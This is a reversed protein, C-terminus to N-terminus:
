LWTTLPPFYCIVFLGSPTVTRASRCSSPAKDRKIIPARAIITTKSAGDNTRSSNAAIGNVKPIMPNIRNLPSQFKFLQAQIHVMTTLRRVIIVESLLMDALMIDIAMLKIMTM